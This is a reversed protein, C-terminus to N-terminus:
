ENMTEEENLYQSVNNQGIVTVDAAFYQSTYGLDYYEQLANVCYSGMQETDIVITAYIVKRDIANIITDSVYYGLINVNGVMNYDVVAQYVCTTSLEDMCVIIDPVDEEMFIDRISEEVSFANTDDISIPVFELEIDTSKENEMTEQIGSFLINQDVDNAYANVLVAVKVSDNMYSHLGDVRKTGDTGSSNYEFAYDQNGIINALLYLGMKGYERGLNYSGVGVFSCRSSMSSDSYLTVVPIGATTAEEILATIEEGEDATVIIGDVGSAIAIRMLDDRGYEQSLSEGMWDVYVNNELGHNYAGQYVSQWFSSKRDETIMVYYRDYVVDEVAEGSSGYSNYFLFVAIGMGITLAMCVITLLLTWFYSDRIRNTQKKKEQHRM